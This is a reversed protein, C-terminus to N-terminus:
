WGAEVGGVGSRITRQSSSQALPEEEVGFAGDGAARSRENVSVMASQRAARSSTLTLTKVRAFKSCLRLAYECGDDHVWVHGVWDIRLLRLLKSGSACEGTVVGTGSGASAM